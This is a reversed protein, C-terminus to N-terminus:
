QGYVRVDRFRSEGVGNGSWDDDAVFVLKSFSGTYFQGVPITYHVWDNTDYNDYHLHGWNQEGYVKFTRNSSISDDSEFAVGHVEGEANSKFDFEIVTDATVTYPFRIAKWANEELQLESGGAQIRFSGRDQTGGFSLISYENFNISDSQEYTVTVANSAGNFNGAEDQVVDAPVTVSIAGINSPAITVSYNSGSGTLSQVAGNSVLIDSTVFGVIAETAAVTVVFAGTVSTDATALTLGPAGEDYVFHVPDSALNSNGVGDVVAGGTMTLVVDGSADPVLVFSYSSGSGTLDSISGNQVVFDDVTLGVVVDTFVLPVTFSGNIKFPNLLSGDTSGSSGVNFIGIPPTLDATVILSNSNNNGNANLDVVGNEPLFIAIDGDDVPTVFFSFNFGNGTLGAVSGNTAVIDEVEFGDVFESFDVFVEFQGNVQSKSAYVIPDPRITDEEGPLVTTVHAVLTGTASQGEWVHFEDITTFGSVTSEAFGLVLYYVTGDGATAFTTVTSTLKVYDANEDDTQWDYNATNILELPFLLEENDVPINVNVDLQVDLEVGSAGTGSYITGNYYELTGVVFEVEPVINDFSAGEFKLSSPQTGSAPTGWSFKSGGTTTEEITYVTGDSSTPSGFEGTSSGSFTFTEYDSSVTESDQWLDPDLSQCFGLLRTAPSAAQIVVSKGTYITWTAGDLSYIISSQGAANPNSLSVQLPFVSNPYLGGPLSIGPPALRSLRIGGSGTAREPSRNLDTIVDTFGDRVALGDESYDWIWDTAHAYEISTERLVKVSTTAIGLAFKKIGPGATVIVFRNESPIWIARPRRSSQESETMMVASVRRDIMVGRFGVLHKADAADPVSKLREIVEAALTLNELSGGSVQFLQAAQNLGMVDSELKGLETAERYNAMSVIVVASVAAMVAIIVLVEVISVGAERSFRWDRDYHMHSCKM